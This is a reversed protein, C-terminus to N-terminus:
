QLFFGALKDDKRVVRVVVDDGGGTFSVKWLYVRHGQQNLECLFTAQFGKALRAGLQTQLSAMIEATMGKKLAETGDAVFAERDGQEIASIVAEFQKQVAADAEASAAARPLASVFVGAAVALLGPM